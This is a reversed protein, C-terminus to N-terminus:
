IDQVEWFRGYAIDEKQTGIARLSIVEVKWCRWLRRNEMAFFELDYEIETGFEEQFFGKERARVAPLAYNTIGVSIKAAKNLDEESLAASDGQTNGCGALLTLALTKKKM